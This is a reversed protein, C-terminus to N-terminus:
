IDTSLSAIYSSASQVALPSGMRAFEIERRRIALATEAVAKRYAAGAESGPMELEARLLDEDIGTLVAVDRVPTLASGLDAIRDILEKDPNM